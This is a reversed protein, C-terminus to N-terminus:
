QSYLNIRIIIYIYTHIGPDQHPYDVLWQARVGERPAESGYSGISDTFCVKVDPPLGSVSMCKLLRKMGMVTVDYAKNPDSATEISLPAALNWICSVTDKYKCILAALSVESTVSVGKEFLVEKSGERLKLPM